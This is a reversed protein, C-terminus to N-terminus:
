LNSRAPLSKALHPLPAHSTPYLPQLIYQSNSGTRSRLLNSTDIAVRRIDQDKLQGAVDALQQMDLPRLNTRVNDQLASLLSLLRPIANLSFVRQRVALM